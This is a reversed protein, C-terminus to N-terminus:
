HLVANASHQPQMLVPAPRQELEEPLRERLEEQLATILDSAQRPTLATWRGKGRREVGIRLEIKRHVELVCFDQVMVPGNSCGIIRKKM